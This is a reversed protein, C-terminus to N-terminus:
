GALFGPGFALVLTGATVWAVLLAAQWGGLGLGVRALFWQLWLGYAGLAPVLVGGIRGGTLGLRLGVDAVVLLVAFLAPLLWQCWNGAVAYRLWAAERGWFRAAAHSLVPQALLACLARGHDSLVDHLGGTGPMLLSMVVLPALSRLFASPTATFHSMGDRRGRALLAVGTLADVVPRQRGGPGDRRMRAM